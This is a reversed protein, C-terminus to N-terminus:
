AARPRRRRRKGTANQVRKDIESRAQELQEKSAPDSSAVPAVPAEPPKSVSVPPVPGQSVDAAPKRGTLSSAHQDRPSILRSLIFGVIGGLLMKWVAKEEEKEVAVELPPGKM